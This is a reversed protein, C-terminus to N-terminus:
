LIKNVDMLLDLELAVCGGTTFTEKAELCSDNVSHCNITYMTNSEFGPVATPRGAIIMFSQNNVTCNYMLIEETTDMVTVTVNTTQLSSM